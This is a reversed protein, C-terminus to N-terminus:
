GVAVRWHRSRGSIRHEDLIVNEYFGDRQSSAAGLWAWDLGLPSDLECVVYDLSSVENVDVGIHGIINAVLWRASNEGERQGWFYAPVFEYATGAPDGNVVHSATLLHWPGILVGSGAHAWHSTGNVRKNVRGMCRYPFKLSDAHSLPQAVTRPAPPTAIADLQTGPPLFAPLSTTLGRTAQRLASLSIRQTGVGVLRPPAAVNRGDLTSSVMAHPNQKPMLPITSM